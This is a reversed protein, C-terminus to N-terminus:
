SFVIFSFIIELTNVEFLIQQLVCPPKICTSKILKITTLKTKNKILSPFFYTFTKFNLIHKIFSDRFISLTIYLSM